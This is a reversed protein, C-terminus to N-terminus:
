PYDDRLVEKILLYILGALEIVHMGIIIPIYIIPIEIM